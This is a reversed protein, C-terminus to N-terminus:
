ISGAIRQELVVKEKEAMDINHCFDMFLSYEEPEIRQIPLSFSRTVKLVENELSYTVSYNGFGTEISVDEPLNDVVYGSPLYFEYEDVTLQPVSILLPYIREVRAIYSEILALPNIIPEFFLQADMKSAFGSAACVFNVTLPSAQNELELFEIKEAKVGRIMDNLIIEYVTKRLSTDLSIFHERYVSAYIGFYRQWGSCQIDGQSTLEIDLKSQLLKKDPPIKLSELGADMDSLVLVKAERMDWTVEGLALYRRSNDLYLGPIDKEEVWVLAHDFLYISPKEWNIDGSGTARALIIRSEVGIQKLMAVLLVAIDLESGYGNLLTESAPYPSDERFGFNKIKTNVYYYISEMKEQLSEKDQTIEEVKEKLYSTQRTKGIINGIFWRSVEDWTSLTSIRVSPIVEITPPMGPEPVLGAMKQRQWIYALRNDKLQRVEPPVNMNLLEYDLKMDQPFIVIYRSLNVPEDYAQFYFRIASLYNTFPTGWNIEKTYKIEIVADNELGPMSVVKTNDVDKISTADLIKGDPRYTRARNIECLPLEIEGWEERGKEDFIKILQHVTYSLTTDKNVEIIMDDVLYVSSARPYDSAPPSDQIIDKVDIQFEAAYGKKDELFNLYKKLKFYGPNLELSRTWLSFAKEEKDQWHNLYGLESYSPYYDPSIEAVERYIKGAKQYEKLKQYIDGLKFYICIDYPDLILLQQYATISREYNATLDLVKALDLWSGRSSYDKDIAETLINIARKYNKKNYYYIAQLRYGPISNENLGLAIELEALAEDEWGQNYYAEALLYHGYYYGPNIGITKQYEEIALLPKEHHAYYLGLGQHAGVYDVDLSLTKEYEAKADNERDFTFAWYYSEALMFHFFASDPNIQAAKKFEKIAREDDGASSSLIGLYAHIMAEKPKALALKELEDLAGKNVKIEKPYSGPFIKEGEPLSAQCKLDPFAKGEPDTIQLSFQWSGEDKTLKALLKNWGENLYVGVAQHHPLFESFVDKEYVCKENLWLKLGDDTTIRLAAERPTPSYVYSLTYATGEEPSLVADLDVVGFRTGFRLKFWRIPRKTGEYEEEFLTEREPAFEEYFGFKTFKGFPGIVWWDDIYGMQRSLSVAKRLMNKKKYLGMLQLNMLNENIPNGVGEELLDEYVEVLEEFRHTYLELAEIRRLYIETLFSSPDLKILTTWEDFVAEYKGRAEYALSLGEHAKIIKPDAEIAKLFYEEAGETDGKHLLYIWGLRTLSMGDEPNQAVVEQLTQINEELNDTPLDLAIEDSTARQENSSFISRPSESSLLYHQLSANEDNPSFPSLSSKEVLDDKSLFTAEGRKGISFIVLLCLAVILGYNVYKTKMEM